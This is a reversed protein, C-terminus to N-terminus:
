QVYEPLMKLAITCICVSGMYGLGGRETWGQEHSIEGVILGPYLFTPAEGCKTFLSFDGVVCLNLVPELTCRPAFVM